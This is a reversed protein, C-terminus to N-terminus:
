GGHSLAVVAMDDDLAGGNLDRVDSIVRDLLLDDHLGEALAAEVLPVLGEVDLRRRENRVRGEILGDTYM